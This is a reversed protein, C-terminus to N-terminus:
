FGSNPRIANRVITSSISCLVAVRLVFPAAARVPGWRSLGHSGVQGGQPLMVTQIEFLIM